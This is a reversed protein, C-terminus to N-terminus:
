FKYMTFFVLSFYRYHQVQLHLLYELPIFFFVLIIFTPTSKKSSNEISISKKLLPLFKFDGRSKLSFKWRFNRPNFFFIRSRNRWL